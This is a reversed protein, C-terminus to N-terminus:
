RRWPRHLAGHQAGANYPPCPSNRPPTDVGLTRARRVWACRWCWDCGGRLMRRVKLKGAAMEPTLDRQTEALMEFGVQYRETTRATLSNSAPPPTTRHFRAIVPPCSAGRRRGHKCRPQHSPPARTVASRASVMFKRVTASRLLPPFYVAHLQWHENENDDRGFPAGHWGMSYPMSAEFLNDYKTLMQKM